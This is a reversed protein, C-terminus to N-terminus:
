RRTRKSAVYGLVGAIAATAVVPWASPQMIVVTLVGALAACALAFSVDDNM